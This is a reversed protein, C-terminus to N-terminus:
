PRYKKVGVVAAGYTHSPTNAATGILRIFGRTQTKDLVRSQLFDTGATVATFASDLASAPVVVWGTSGDVSDEITPTLDGTARLGHLNIRMLGEYARIDLAAGTLTTTRVAVPAFALVDFLPMAKVTAAM